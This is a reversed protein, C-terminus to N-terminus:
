ESRLASAPDITAARWAPRLLAAACALLLVFAVFAYTAADTRSVDFLLAEIFRSLALAGALGLAVGAAALAMGERFVDRMVVRSRAGIAMRIGIERTRQAVSFAVLAYVGMAALLMSLGAFASMVMFVFRPETMSEAISQRGTMLDYIPLDPDLSRVAERVSAVSAAPDGATRISISAWRTIREPVSPHFVVWPRDRDDIGDLKPDDVVGVVTYWRGEPGRRFRRGAARGGPWLLRALDTDVIVAGSEDALDAAGFNRGEVLPIGMAGFYTTDISTTIIIRLPGSEGEAGEAELDNTFWLGAGDSWGVGTVGPLARLRADLVSNFSSREEGSRSGGPSLSMLLVREADFGPDVRAMRVFSHGLLGAGSLLLMALALQAVQVTRRIRVRSVSASMGRGSARAADGRRSAWAAPVIGFLLGTVVTLTLAFVFARADVVVTNYHWRTLTEPAIALLGRVGWFAILTGLGGALVALTLSETLLQRFLSRRSAGLARRVVFESERAVGRVLLLGAANACAVLLLFGAAGALAIVAARGGFVGADLRTATPQWANDRPFERNLVAAIEDLRAQAAALPVGARLRGLVMVGPSSESPPALPVVADVLGSPLRRLAPPLVGIVTYLEGSLRITRGVMGPDAGFTGRWLADGILVVRDRGPVGEEELFDRGLGPTIGLVGLFEPELAWVGLHRPEGAGTLTAARPLSGAVSEFIRTEAKLQEMLPATVASGVDAIQVIGAPDRFPLPNMVLADVVSFMATAAGMGMGLTLVVAVVFAPQRRFLRLADRVDPRAGPAHGTASLWFADRLSGLGRLRLRLSIRGRGDGAEVSDEYAHVLESRWEEVWEARRPEPVLRAFALVFALGPPGGGGSM